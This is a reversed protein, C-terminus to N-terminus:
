VLILIPEMNVECYSQLVKNVPLGPIDKKREEKNVFFFFNFSRKLFLLPIRGKTATHGCM